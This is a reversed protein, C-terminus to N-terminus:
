AVENAVEAGPPASLRITRDVVDQAMARWVRLQSPTAFAAPVGAMAGSSGSCEHVLADAVYIVEAIGPDGGMVSLDPHHHHSVGFVIEAPLGWLGLLYAGVKAHSTGTMEEEVLYLPRHERAARILATEFQEPFRSALVLKGVDHLFAAVPCLAAVSERVPLRAAVAAVLRSHDQFEAMSFAGTREDPRDAGSLKVTGVLHKMADLGLYSVATEVTTVQEASNSFASSVLQLVKAAVGVDGQVIAAIEDPSASRAELARVLAPWTQPMSPLEGVATVARRIGEDTLIANIESSREIADRLKTIDCPKLLFQHAVPAARLAAQADFYGSLVIRVIGPFRDRVQELLQAGDMGPMRMDTVIVDFENLGPTSLAEDGSQAFAVHWQGSYSHLLRQLSELIRPEDDVFLIRKM